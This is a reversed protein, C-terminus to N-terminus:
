LLPTPAKPPHHAYLSRALREADRRDLYPLTVRHSASSTGAHDISIRSM